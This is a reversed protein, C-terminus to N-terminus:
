PHYNAKLKEWRCRRQCGGFGLVNGVIALTVNEINARSFIRIAETHGKAGTHSGVHLILFHNDPIGLRGRVNLDSQPGFEDYAAGNPILYLNRIAHKRAFNIDRYDESLFVNADYADLWNPMQEFYGAFRPSYLGSFGTPVFVKKAKIKGLLPLILDTAWQQAAFNTVIDFDSNLLFQRYSDADGKIGGAMNGSVAFEAIRVGNIMASRRDPLKTTAVTVEHGLRVLRESLQRVVEQMGGVSPNYFEVTHLIKM